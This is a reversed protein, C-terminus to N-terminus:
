GDMGRSRNAGCTLDGDELARIAEALLALEKDKEDEGEYVVRFSLKWKGAAVEQDFKAGSAAAGWIANIAVHDRTETGGTAGTLVCDSISLRGRESVGEVGKEPTRGFM